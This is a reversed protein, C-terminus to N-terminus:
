KAFRVVLRQCLTSRYKKMAQYQDYISDKEMECLAKFDETEFFQLLGHIRNDLECLEAILGGNINISM